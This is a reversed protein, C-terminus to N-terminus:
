QSAATLSARTAGPDNSIIADVGLAALRRVVKPQDVTWVAVRYGRRKWAAMREATVLVHEPHVSFLRLAPAVWGRRLPLPQKAHFLFGVPLRPARLRARALAGPDFSSLLVRGTVAHRAVTRVVGAVLSARTTRDAKLEVNVLMEPGLEELAEDLTPISHGGPLRVDRLAALPMADIREGRAALRRLDGDHYVVIEGSGCVRADLEVGDAGHDRAAAFAALTNETAHVSDGRHGICLPTHIPARWRLSSSV